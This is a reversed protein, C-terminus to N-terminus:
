CVSLKKIERFRFPKAIAPHGPLIYAILNGVSLMNGLQILPIRVCLFNKIERFRFPKAIAPHGPPIYAILNGVSLM